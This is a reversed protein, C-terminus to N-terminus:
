PCSCAAGVTLVSKPNCSVEPTVSDQQNSLRKQECARNEYVAPHPLHNVRLKGAQMHISNETQQQSTQRLSTGLHTTQLLVLAGGTPALSYQPNHININTSKACIKRQHRSIRTIKTRRRANLRRRTSGAYLPQNTTPCTPMELPSTRLSATAFGAAVHSRESTWVNM